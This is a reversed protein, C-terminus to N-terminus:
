KRLSEKAKLFSAIRDRYARAQPYSRDEYAAQFDELAKRQRSSLHAPVEVAVRVILDGAGRGNVLPAGKGRLRFLKGDPTGPAIRIKATGEPTPVEVDGGLAAVDPPVPAEVLLDDGQREFLDSERVHLVVHLDGPRGGRAGAQGHGAVRLRTGTEVGAPVHLDIKARDRLRGSGSCTRCPTKVITGAGRCVPCPQRMQFFAQRTTVYGSGGCQKCTERRTGAAAGTGHCDPCDKENPIEITRTVGFLSEEFSIPLDYQLDAGDEPGNPDEEAGGGTFMDFISRGGGRRRGGGMGGMAAGFFQSLIDNLDAGHTFDRDFDFGGAGFKVGDPGYQDYRQRKAPDSLVEYAESGKKFMEEANKDGPNRDPHYKMAFKRYAKKIDDASANREVGLIKYYDQEAAM